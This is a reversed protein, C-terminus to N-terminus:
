RIGVSIVPMDWDSSNGPDFDMTSNQQGFTANGSIDLIEYIIYTGKFTVHLYGWNITEVMRNGETVWDDNLEEKPIQLSGNKFTDLDIWKRKNPDKYYSNFHTASSIEIMCVPLSSNTNIVKTIFESWPITQYSIYKDKLATSKEYIDKEVEVEGHFIVGDGGTFHLYEDTETRYIRSETGMIPEYFIISNGNRQIDSNVETATSIVLDPYYHTNTWEQTALTGDELPFLLQYTDEESRGIEIFREESDLRMYGEPTVMKLGLGDLEWTADASRHKLGNPSIKTYADESYEDLYGLYILNNSIECYESQTDGVTFGSQIWEQTALTGSEEPLAWDFSVINDSNADVPFLLKGSTKGESVQFDTSTLRVYSSMHEFSICDTGIHYGRHANQSSLGYNTYNIDGKSLDIEFTEPSGGNTGYTNAKIKLLNIDLFNTRDQDPGPTSLRIGGNNCFLVNDPLHEKNLKPVYKEDLKVLTYEYVKLVQTLSDGRIYTGTSTFLGDGFYANAASTKDVSLLLSPGRGSDIKLLGSVPEYVSEGSIIEPERGTETEQFMINIEKLEDKSYVNDSIKIFKLNSLVSVTERNAIDEDNWEFFTKIDEYFPRNKIYDVATTDNQEYNAQIQSPLAAITNNVYEETALGEVSNDIYQQVVSGAEAFQESVWNKINLAANDVYEILLEGKEDILKEIAEIDTGAFPLDKVVTKGDGVKFRAVPYTADPKYIIIEKDQPVYGVAKNWNAEYDGKPTFHSNYFTKTNM